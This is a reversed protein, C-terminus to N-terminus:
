NTANAYSLMDVNNVSNEKGTTHRRHTPDSQTGYTFAAITIRLRRRKSEPWLLDILVSFGSFRLASFGFFPPPPPCLVIM